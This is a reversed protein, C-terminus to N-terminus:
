SDSGQREGVEGQGLAWSAQWAGAGGGGGGGTKHGQVLLSM